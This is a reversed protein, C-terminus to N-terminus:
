LGRSMWRWCRSAQAGVRGLCVSKRGFSARHFNDPLGCDPNGSQKRKSLRKWSCCFFFFFGRDGQEGVNICAHKFGVSSVRLNGSLYINERRRFSIGAPWRVRQERFTGNSIGTAGPHSKSWFRTELRWFGSFVAELIGTEEDDPFPGQNGVLYPLSQSHSLSCPLWVGGGMTPRNVM